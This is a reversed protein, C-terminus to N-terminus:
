CGRPRRTLARGTASHPWPKAHGTALMAQGIDQGAATVTAVIRGYRDTYLPAVTIPGILQGRLAETATAAPGPCARREPADIDAIRM